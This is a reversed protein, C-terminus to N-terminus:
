EIVQSSVLDSLMSSSVQIYRRIDTMSYGTNSSGTFMKLDPTYLKYKDSVKTDYYSENFGAEYVGQVPNRSKKVTNTWFDIEWSKDDPDAICRM